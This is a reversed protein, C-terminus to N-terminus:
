GDGVCMCGEKWGKWGCMLEGHGVEGEVGDGTDDDEVGFALTDDRFVIVRRMLRGGDTLSRGGWARQGGVRVRREFILARQLLAHCLLGLLPITLERTKLPFALSFPPPHTQAKDSRRWAQTPRDLVM